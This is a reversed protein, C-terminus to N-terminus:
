PSASQCRGQQTANRMPAFVEANQSRAGVPKQALFAPLVPPNINKWCRECMPTGAAIKYAQVRQGTRELHPACLVGPEAPMPPYVPSRFELQPPIAKKGKSM